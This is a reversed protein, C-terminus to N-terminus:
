IGCVGPGILGKERKIKLFGNSGYQEGWSNQVLWYDVGNDETGFGVLLVAHDVSTSDDATTCNSEIVTGPKYFRVADNEAAIAVVIPGESVAQELQHYDSSNVWDYGKLRITSAPITLNDRCIGNKGSYPYGSGLFLKHSKAYAFVSQISGGNCQNTCDLIQQASLEM